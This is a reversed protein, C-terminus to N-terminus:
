ITLENEEKYETAQKILEALIYFAISVGAFLIILFALVLVIIVDAGKALFVTYLLDITWLATEILSAVGSTKLRKVNEICFPKRNKLSDFQGIFQRVIVLLAIGNPYIVFATANLKLGVMQLMFPLVILLAIGGWFCIQLFIKLFKGIGKEGLIEM